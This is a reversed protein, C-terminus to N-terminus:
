PAAAVIEEMETAEPLPEELSIRTVEIAGGLEAYSLLPAAGRTDRPHQACAGQLICLLIIFISKKM